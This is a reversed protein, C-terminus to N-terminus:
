DQCVQIMQLVSTLNGRLAVSRGVEIALEQAGTRMADIDFLPGTGRDIRPQRNYVTPELAFEELFRQLETQEQAAVSAIESARELLQALRVETSSLERRAEDLLADLRDLSPVTARPDVIGRAGCVVNIRV